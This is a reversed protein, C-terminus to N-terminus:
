LEESNINFYYPAHENISTKTGTAWDIINYGGTSNPFKLYRIGASYLLTKANGIAAFVQVKNILKADSTWDVKLTDSGELTLNSIAGYQTNLFQVITGADAAPSPVSWLLGILMFVLIAFQRARASAAWQGRRWLKQDAALRLQLRGMSFDRKLSASRKSEAM